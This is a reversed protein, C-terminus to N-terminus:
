TRTGNERRLHHVLSNVADTQRDIKEGLKGVAAIMEDHRDYWRFRGTEPDPAHWKHLDRLIKKDGDGFVIRSSKGNKGNIIYPKLQQLALLVFIGGVGVQTALDGGM